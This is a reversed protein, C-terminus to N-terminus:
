LKKCVSWCIETSLASPSSHKFVVLIVKLFSLVEGRAIDWETCTHYLLQELLLTLDKAVHDNHARLNETLLTSNGTAGFIFHWRLM